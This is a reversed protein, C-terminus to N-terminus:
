EAEEPLPRVCEVVVQAECVVPRGECVTRTVVEPHNPARCIELSVALVAGLLATTTWTM